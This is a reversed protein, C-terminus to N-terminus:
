EDVVEVQLSTAVLKDLAVEHNNGRIVVLRDIPLSAFFALKYVPDIGKPRPKCMYIENGITLLAGAVKPDDWDWETGDNTTFRAPDQDHWYLAVCMSQSIPRENHMVNLINPHGKRAQPCWVGPRADFYEQFNEIYACDHAAILRSGPGLKSFDLNPALKRSGGKYRTEEIWDVPYPYNNRGIRDAIHFVEGSPSSQSILRVGRSPLDYAEPVVVPPDILFHEIEKGFPSRAVEVYIGGQERTEGCARGYASAQAV